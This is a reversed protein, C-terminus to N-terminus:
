RYNKEYFSLYEKWGMSIYLIDLNNNTIFYIESNNLLSEFAKNNISQSHFESASQFNSFSLISVFKDTGLSMKESLYASPLTRLYQEAITQAASSSLNPNLKYLIAHSSKKDNLYNIFNQTVKPKENKEEPSNVRSANESLEKSIEASSTQSPEKKKMTSVMIKANNDESIISEEMQRSAPKAGNLYQLMDAAKKADESNPDDKTKTLILNLAKMTEKPQGSAGYIFAKLLLAKPYINNTSHNLEIIEIGALADEYAGKTYDMYSKKYIQSVLQDAKEDNSKANPNIAYLAYKSNPFKLTLQSKIDSAKDLREKDIYLRYISYLVEDETPINKPYKKYLIEYTEIAKDLDKIEYHYIRAMGILGQQALEIYSIKKSASFPLRKVEIAAIDEPSMNPSKIDDMPNLDKSEQSSNSANTNPSARRWNDQLTLKGWKKQFLLKGKEVLQKDEFYSSNSPPKQKDTSSKGDDALLTTEKQLEQEKAENREKKIQKAIKEIAKDEGLSALELISDNEYYLNYEKLLKKLAETKRAFDKKNPYNEPLKTTASDYYNAALLYNSLQYYTQAIKDYMVFRRSDTKCSEVGLKYYKIATKEDKKNLYVNGLALYIKDLNTLKSGKRLMARLSSIAEDPNGSNFSLSKLKAEFELDPSLSEKLSMAYEHAASSNDNQKEAIQALLFRMRGREKKTLNKFEFFKGIQEQAGKYDEIALHYMVRTKVLNKRQQLPFSFDEDTQIITSLAKDYQKRKILTKILWISAENKAFHYKIRPQNIPEKKRSAIKVMNDYGRLKNVPLHGSVYGKPYKETILQLLLQASDYEGRLYRIKGEVLLADDVWKNNPRLALLKNLKPATESFQGASKFIEADNEYEFVSIIDSTNEQASQTVTRYGVKYRNSINFYTNYYSVFNTYYQKVGSYKTNSCSLESLVVLIVIFYVSKRRM